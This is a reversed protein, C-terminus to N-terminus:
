LNLDSKALKQTPNPSPFLCGKKLEKFLRYNSGESILVLYIESFSLILRQLCKEAM